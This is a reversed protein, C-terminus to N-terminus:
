AAVTTGPVMGSRWIEANLHDPAAICLRKPVEPRLGARAAVLTHRREMEASAFPQGCLWALVPSGGSFFSSFSSTREFQEAAAAAFWEVPRAKPALDDFRSSAPWFPEALQVRTSRLLQLLQGLAVISEQRAGWEWALRAWSSAREATCARACVAGLSQLAFALAACRTAVPQDMARWTAYAALCDQYELDASIRIGGLRARRRLLDRAGGFRFPM